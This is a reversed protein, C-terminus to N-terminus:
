KSPKYTQYTRYTQYTQYTRNSVKEDNQCSNLMGQNYNQHRFGVNQNLIVSPWYKCPGIKTIQDSLLILMQVQTPLMTISLIVSLMKQQLDPEAASVWAMVSMTLYLRLKVSISWPRGADTLSLAQTNLSIAYSCLSLKIAPRITALYSWWLWPTWSHVTATPAIHTRWGTVLPPTLSIYNGQLESLQWFSQIYSISCPACFFSTEFYLKFIYM